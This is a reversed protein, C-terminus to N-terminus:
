LEGLWGRQTSAGVGSRWTTTAEADAERGMRVGLADSGFAV